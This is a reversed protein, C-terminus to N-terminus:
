QRRSNARLVAKRVTGTTAVRFPTAVQPWIEPRALTSMGRIVSATKVGGRWRGFDYGDYDLRLVEGAALPGAVTVTVNSVTVTVSQSATLAGEIEVAPYSRANGETRVVTRDIPGDHTWSEDIVRRGFAELADFAVDGRLQYGAGQGWTTREWEIVEAVIAAWRWGPAADFVLDQLGRQPDLLLAVEDRLAGVEEPSEGRLIVDFVYRAKTRTTGGLLQGDSGPAELTEVQLGAFSPLARLTAIVDHEDSDFSGFILSM